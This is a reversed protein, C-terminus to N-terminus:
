FAMSIEALFSIRSLNSPCLSVTLSTALFHGDVARKIEFLPAVSGDLVIAMEHALCDQRGGTWECGQIDHAHREQSLPVVYGSCGRM